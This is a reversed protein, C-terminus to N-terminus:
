ASHPKQADAAPLSAEAARTLSKESFVQASFVEVITDTQRWADEPLGAKRCTQALFTDHDWGHETAVQPLLVGRSRGRSVHVGHRGVEVEAPDPVPTLSSLVSIEIDIDALDEPGLPDFRPDRCAAAVAMEQVTRFLPTADAFTGICGRLDGHRHLSVFAGGPAILSERHPSGPPMRNTALYERLTARAIRLLERKEDDSLVHDYGM